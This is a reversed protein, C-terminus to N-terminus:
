IMLALQQSMGANQLLPLIMCIKWCNEYEDVLIIVAKKKGKEDVLFQKKAM